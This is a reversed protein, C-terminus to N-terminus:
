SLNFVQAQPSQSNSLLINRFTKGNKQNQDKLNPKEMPHAYRQRGLFTSYM